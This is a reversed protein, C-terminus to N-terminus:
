QKTKRIIKFYKQIESIMSQTLYFGCERQMKAFLIDQDESQEEKYGTSSELEKIRKELQKIIKNKELHLFQQEEIRELMTGFKEKAEPYHLGEIGVENLAAVLPYIHESWNIQRLGVISNRIENIKLLAEKFKDKEKVSPPSLEPLTLLQEALRWIEEHSPNHSDCMMQIAKLGQKLTTLKITLDAKEKQEPVVVPEVKPNCYPCSKNNIQSTDDCQLCAAPIPEIEKTQKPIAVKEMHNCEGCEGNCNTCTCVVQNQFEMEVDYDRTLDPAWSLNIYNYTPHERKYIETKVDQIFEEKIPVANERAASIAFRHSVMDHDKLICIGDDCDGKTKCCSKNLEGCTEPEEPMTWVHPVPKGDILKFTVKKTIM